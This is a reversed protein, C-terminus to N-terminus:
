GKFDCPMTSMSRISRSAGGRPLRTRAERWEFVALQHRLALNGAAAEEFARNEVYM